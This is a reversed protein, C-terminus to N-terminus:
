LNDPNLLTARFSTLATSSVSPTTFVVGLRDNRLFNKYGMAWLRKHDIEFSIYHRQNRDDLLTPIEISKFFAVYPEAQKYRYFEAFFKTCEFVTSHDKKRVEDIASLANALASQLAPDSSRLQSLPVPTEGNAVSFTILGAVCLAGIGLVRRM